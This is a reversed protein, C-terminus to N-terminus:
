EPYSLTPEASKKQNPPQGSRLGLRYTKAMVSHAPRGVLAALQTFNLGRAIGDRLIEEEEPKWYPVKCNDRYTRGAWINQVVNESVGFQAALEMQTRIGKAALIAKAMSPVLMRATGNPHRVLQPNHEWRDTANEAPTKWQLHHPNVCGEHGRGCNHAAQHEDSPPDGHVLKCMMRHAWHGKGNYGLMGRGHRDRAFPWVLCWEDHQYDAHAVLWKYSKGEGKVAM